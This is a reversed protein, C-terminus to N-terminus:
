LVYRWLPFYGSRSYQRIYRQRYARSWLTQSCTDLWESDSDEGLLFGRESCSVTAIFPLQFGLRRGKPGGLSAQSHERPRYNNSRGREAMSQRGRSRLAL